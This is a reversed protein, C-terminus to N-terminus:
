KQEKISRIRKGFEGWRMIVDLQPYNEVGLTFNSLLIEGGNCFFRTAITNKRPSLILYEIDDEHFVEHYCYIGYTFSDFRSKSFSNTEPVYDVLQCGKTNRTNTMTFDIQTQGFWCLVVFDEGWLVNHFDSPLLAPPFMLIRGANALFTDLERKCTKKEFVDFTERDHFALRPPFILFQFEGFGGAAKTAINTADIMEYSIERQRFYVQLDFDLGQGIVGIRAM